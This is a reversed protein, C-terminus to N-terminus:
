DALATAEPNAHLSRVEGGKMAPTACQRGSENENKM